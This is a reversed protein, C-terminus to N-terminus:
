LIECEFDRKNGLSLFHKDFGENMIPPGCVWVKKLDAGVAALQKNVFDGDWREKSENSFRPILQFNKIDLRDCLKQM